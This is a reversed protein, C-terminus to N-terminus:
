DSSCIQVNPQTRERPKVIFDVLRAGFAIPADYSFDPVPGDVKFDFNLVLLALAVKLEM